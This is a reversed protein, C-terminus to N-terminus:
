QMRFPGGAQRSARPLLIGENRGWFFLFGRCARLQRRNRDTGKQRALGPQGDPTKPGAIEARRRGGGQHSGPLIKRPALEKDGMEQYARPGSRFKTRPVDYWIVRGKEGGAGGAPKTADMTFTSPGDLKFDLAATLGAPQRRGRPRTPRAPLSRGDANREAFEIQFDMMNSETNCGNEVKSEWPLRYRSLSFRAIPLRRKEDASGLDLICRTPARQPNGRELACITPPATGSNALWHRPDLPRVDTRAAGQARPVSRGV